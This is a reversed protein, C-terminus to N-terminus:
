ADRAGVVYQLRLEQLARLRAGQSGLLIQCASVAISRDKGDKRHLLVLACRLAPLNLLQLRQGM